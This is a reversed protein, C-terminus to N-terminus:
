SAAAETLPMEVGAREALTLAVAADDMRGKGAASTERFLALAAQTMPLDMDASRAVQSVIDLDKVFIDVASHATYDGQAIHAGRNAFMWSNGACTQIVEHVQDLDMGMRAALVMAEAAAAIHVGALLQNITKMQAGTGPETGLRVVHGAIAGIVPAAKEFAADPGAALMTIEGRAARETGGSVPSEIPLMGADALRRCLDAAENPEMTSCLIFVTGPRAAGVAGNPGFLVRNTQLSNVVLVLVVDAAAAAKAPTGAIDGGAARLRDKSEARLDVGVTAIGSRQLSLAVGLGMAGLGIVAARMKETM